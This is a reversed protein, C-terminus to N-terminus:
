FKLPDDDDSSVETSEVLASAAKTAEQTKQQTQASSPAGAKGETLKALMANIEEPTNPRRMELLKEKLKAERLMALEEETFPTRDLALAKHKAQRRNGNPPVEIKIQWDPGENGGAEKNYASQWETVTIYIATSFDLLKLKNGDDRDLVWISYRRKPTFGKLMLPDIVNGQADKEPSRCIVPEWHQLYQFAKGVFRLRYKKNPELKLFEVGSKGKGSNKPLNSEDFDVFQAM